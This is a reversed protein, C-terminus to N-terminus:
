VPRFQSSLLHAAEDGTVGIIGDFWLWFSCFMHNIHSYAHLKTWFCNQIDSVTDYLCLYKYDFCFPEVYLCFVLGHSGCEECHSARRVDSLESGANCQMSPPDLGSHNRIKRVGASEHSYGACVPWTELKGSARRFTSALSAFPVTDWYEAQRVRGHSVPARRLEIPGRTGELSLRLNDIM